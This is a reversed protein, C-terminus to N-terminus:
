CGAVPKSRLRDGASGNRRAPAKSLWKPDQLLRKKRRLCYLNQISRQCDRPFASRQLRCRRELLPQLPQLSAELDQFTRCIRHRQGSDIIGAHAVGGMATNCSFCEACRACLRSNSLLFVTTFEKGGFTGGQVHVLRELGTLSRDRAHTLAAQGSRIEPFGCAYTRVSAHACTRVSAHVRACIHLHVCICACSRICACGYACFLPPASITAHFEYWCLWVIIYWCKTGADCNYIYEHRQLIICPHFLRQM